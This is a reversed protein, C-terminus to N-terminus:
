GLKSLGELNRAGRSPFLGSEDQLGGEDTQPAGEADAEIAKLLRENREKRAGEVEPAPKSRDWVINEMDMGRTQQWEQGLPNDYKGQGWIASCVVVITVLAAPWVGDYFEVNDPQWDFFRAVPADTKSEYTELIRAIFPLMKPTLKLTAEDGECVLKLQRALDTNELKEQFMKGRMKKGMRSLRMREVEEDEPVDKNNNINKKISPMIQTWAMDFVSSQEVRTLLGAVVDFSRIRDQALEDPWIRPWQGKLYRVVISRGKAQEQLALQFFDEEDSWERARKLFPTLFGEEDMRVFMDVAARYEKSNVLASLRNDVYGRYVEGKKLKTIRVGDAAVAIRSRRAHGAWANTASALGHRGARCEVFTRSSGVEPGDRRAPGSMCLLIVAVLLM